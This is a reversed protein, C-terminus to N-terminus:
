DILMWVLDVVLDGLKILFIDAIGCRAWDGLLEESFVGGGGRHHGSM